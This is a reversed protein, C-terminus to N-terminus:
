QNSMRRAFTAYLQAHREAVADMSSSKRYDAIARALERRATRDDLLSEIRDAAADSDDVDFSAICGWEDQLREFYPEDSAVVPLEYAACWNFIGSQTVDRYPLVVLDAANFAAHFGNDDLLGTIRVNDPAEQEVLDMFKRDEDAQVGGALLFSYEPLRKAIEVFVDQGKEPRVYGPEVVVHETPEYGFTRKAEGADMPVTETQVGHPIVEDSPPTTSGRFKERCNESLFVMHNAGSAIMANNLRVYLRKLPVLPPGITDANWASHMTVVVPVGRLAAFLYLIPFFVWSTFSKPGFIGYEHQVHVVEVDLRGARVAARAYHLPDLSRLRVPVLETTVRGDLEGLLTGTYTGIGCSGDNPTTVFGVKTDGASATRTDM